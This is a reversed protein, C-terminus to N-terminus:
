GGGEGHDGQHVGGGDELVATNRSHEVSFGKFGDSFSELQSRLRPRGDWDSSCTGTSMQNWMEVIEPDEAGVKMNTGPSWLDFVSELVNLVKTMHSSKPDFCYTMTGQQHSWVVAVAAGALTPKTEPTFAVMVGNDEEQVTHFEEM